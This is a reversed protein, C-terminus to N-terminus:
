PRIQKGNRDWIDAIFTYKFLHAHFQCATIDADSIVM